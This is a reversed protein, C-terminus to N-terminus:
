GDDENRNDQEYYTDVQKYAPILISHEELNEAYLDEKCNYYPNDKSQYERSLTGIGVPVVIGLYLAKVKSPM